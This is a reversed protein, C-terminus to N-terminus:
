LFQVQTSNLNRSLMQKYLFRMHDQAYPDPKASLIRFRVGFLRVQVGTDLFGAGAYFGLREIAQTPDPAESPEESELLLTKQNSFHESLASLIQTGYGKRRHQPLVALYDLLECDGKPSFMWAYGVLDGNDFAGLFSYIGRDYLDKMINWPKLEDDPFDSTMNEKFIIQAQTPTLEILEM